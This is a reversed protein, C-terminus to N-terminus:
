GGYIVRSFTDRGLQDTGLLHEFSPGQVRDPINLAVPDYPAILPAFLASGIILTVIVLGVLGVRDRILHRFIEAIESNNKAPKNM